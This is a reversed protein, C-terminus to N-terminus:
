QLNKEEHEDRHTHQNQQSFTRVQEKNKRNTTIELQYRQAQSSKKFFRRQLNHTDISSIYSIEMNILVIHRVLNITTDCVCVRQQAM